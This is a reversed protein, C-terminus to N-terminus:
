RAQVSVSAPSLAPAALVSATCGSSTIFVRNCLINRGNRVWYEYKKCNEQERISDKM